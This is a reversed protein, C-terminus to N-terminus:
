RYTKRRIVRPRGRVVKRGRGGIKRTRNYMRGRRASSCGGCGGGQLRRRYTRKKKGRRGWGQYGGYRPEGWNQERQYRNYATADDYVGRAKSGWDTNSKGSLFTKSLFDAAHNMLKDFLNAHQVTVKMGGKYRRSIRKNRRNVM